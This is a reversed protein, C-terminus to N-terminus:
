RAAATPPSKTPFPVAAPQRSSCTNATLQTAARSFPRSGRSPLRTWCRRPHHHQRRHHRMLPLVMLGLSPRLSCFFLSSPHPPAPRRLLWWRCCCDAAPAAATARKPLRHCVARGGGGGRGGGAGRRVSQESYAESKALGAFGHAAYVAAREPDKLAEFAVAARRFRGLAAARQDAVPTANGSRKPVFHDPHYRLSLRHYQARLRADGGRVRGDPLLAEAPLELAAALDFPELAPGLAETDRPDGGAAGGWGGAGGSDGWEDEGEDEGGWDDDDGSGAGVDGRGKAGSLWAVAGPVNRPPPAEDDGCSDDDADSGDSGDSCGSGDGGDSRDSSKDGGDIETRTIPMVEVDSGSDSSESERDASEPELSAVESNKTPETSTTKLLEASKTSKTDKAGKAGKGGKGGLGKETASRKARDADRCPKCRSPLAFSKKEYTKQERSTFIFVNTCDKCNLELDGAGDAPDVRTTEKKEPEPKPPPPAYGPRQDLPVYDAGGPRLNEPRSDKKLNKQKSRPLFLSLTLLRGNETKKFHFEITNILRRKKKHFGGYTMISSHKTRFILVRSHSRQLDAVNEAVAFAERRQFFGLLLGLLFLQPGAPPARPHRSAM